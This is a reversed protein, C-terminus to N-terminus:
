RKRPAPPQPAARGAAVARLPRFGRERLARTLEEEVRECRQYLRNQSLRLSGGLVATDGLSTLLDLLPARLRKGVTTRLGAGHLWKAPPPPLADAYFCIRLACGLFQTLGDLVAYPQGRRLSWALSARRRRLERFTAAIKGEWVEKGPAPPKRWLAAAEGHPDHLVVGHQVLFLAEDDAAAVAQRFDGLGRAIVRFRQARGDTAPPAVPAADGPTLVLFDLGSYADAYETVASGCLVIAVDDRRAAYPAEALLRDRVVDRAREVVGERVKM